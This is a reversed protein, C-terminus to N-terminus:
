RVQEVFEKLIMLIEEDDDRLDIYGGSGAGPDPIDFTQILIFWLPGLPGM